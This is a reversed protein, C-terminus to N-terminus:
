RALGVYDIEYDADKESFEYDGAEELALEKAQEENEAEVQITAFSYGIRAIDVDYKM